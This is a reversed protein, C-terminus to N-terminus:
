FEQLSGPEAVIALDLVLYGKNFIRRSCFVQCLMYSFEYIVKSSVEYFFKFSM